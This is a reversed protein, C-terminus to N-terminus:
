HMHPDCLSNKKLHVNQKLTTKIQMKRIVLPIWCSKMHKNATQIDEKSVHKTLNKDM